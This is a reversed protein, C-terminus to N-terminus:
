FDYTDTLRELERRGKDLEDFTMRYDFAWAAARGVSSVICDIDKMASAIMLPSVRYLDELAGDIMPPLAMPDWHIFWSHAKYETQFLDSEGVLEFLESVNRVGMLYETFRKHHKADKQDLLDNYERAPLESEPILPLETQITRVWAAPRSAGKLIPLQIAKAVEIIRLNLYQQSRDEREAKDKYIWSFIVNGELASRMILQIGRSEKIALLDLAHSKMRGLFYLCIKQLATLNERSVANLADALSITDRLHQELIPLAEVGEKNRKDSLESM